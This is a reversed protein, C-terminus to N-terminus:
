TGGRWRELIRQGADGLFRDASAWVRNIAGALWRKHGHKPSFELLRPYPYRRNRAGVRIATWLPFPRKQVRARISRSLRLTAGHPAASRAAAEGAAALAQMSRRWADSYLEEPPNVLRRLERLGEIQVM